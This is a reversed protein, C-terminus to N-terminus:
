LHSTSTPGILPKPPNKLIKQVEEPYTQINIGEIKAGKVLLREIAEIHNLDCAIKLPTENNNNKITILHPAEKILLDAVDLKNHRIACHLPTDGEKNQADIQIKNKNKYRLFMKCIDLRGHMAACHLPTNENADVGTIYNANSALIEAIAVKGNKAAYFLPNWDKNEAEDEILAYAEGIDGKKLHDALLWNLSKLYINNLIDKDAPFASSRPAKLFAKINQVRTVVSLPELTTMFNHLDLYEQVARNRDDVIFLKYWSEAIASALPDIQLDKLGQSKCFKFITAFIIAFMLLKCTLWSGNGVAQEKKTIHRIKEAQTVANLKKDWGNVELPHEFSHQFEDVIELMKQLDYPKTRYVRLGPIKLSGLGNIKILRDEFLVVGKIYEIVNKAEHSPLFTKIPVILIKNQQLINETQSFYEPIYFELLTASITHIIINSEKISFKKLKQNFVNRFLLLLKEIHEKATMFETFSKKFEELAVDFPLDEVSYTNGKLNTERNELGFRHTLLVRKYLEEDISRPERM